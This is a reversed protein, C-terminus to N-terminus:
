DHLSSGFFDAYFLFRVPEDELEDTESDEIAFQSRTPDAV